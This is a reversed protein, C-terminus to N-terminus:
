TLSDTNDKRPTQLKAQALVTELPIGVGAAIRLVTEFSPHRTGNEVYGIAQESLGSKAAVAYKSM